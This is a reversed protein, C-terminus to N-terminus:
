KLVVRRFLKQCGYWIDREMCVNLGCAGAPELSYRTYLEGFLDKVRRFYSLDPAQMSGMVPRGMPMWVSATPIIGRRALETAGQKLTEFPELGIIFNSFAKGKGHHEVAYTLADLTRKRTAFAIKGPTIVAAREEDWVEISCAIRSAGLCFYDDILADNEPPTIYLLTEGKPKATGLDGLAELYARLHQEETKGCFTSGGTIQVSNVGVNEVAYRVIEAVDQPQVAKPLPKKKKALEEFDAGSFCFECPKGAAAYECPWLCQFAVWDLGQLVANGVYSLGSSTKQKYFATAPPFSIPTVLAGNACLCPQGDRMELTFPTGLQSAYRLLKLNSWSLMGSLYKLHFGMDTLQVITQDPLLFCNCCLPSVSLRTTNEFHQYVERQVKLGRSVVLAKLEISDLLENGFSYSSM